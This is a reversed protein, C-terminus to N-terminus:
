KWLDYPFTKIINQRITTFDPLEPPDTQLAEEVSRTVPYNIRGTSYYYDNYKFMNETEKDSLLIAPIGYTEALIIGHLSSSIVLETNCLQNLFHKYNNTVPTISGPIKRTTEHHLVILHKSKENKEPTYILPMLIAPDGYLEPCAYGAALLAKRTEPGRVLRVDLKRTRRSLFGFDDIGHKLGSGWIVANQAGGQIISGVTYLHKTEKVPIDLSLNKLALMYQTITVSLHDGVNEMQDQNRMSWWHINVRNKKTKRPLCNLIKENRRYLKRLYLVEDKLNM